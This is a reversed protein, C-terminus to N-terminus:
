GFVLTLDVSVEALGPVVTPGPTETATIDTYRGDLPTRHFRISRAPIDVIWYEPIGHRAYLEAKVSRDFAASSDAVEVVLLVDEPGPHAHRYFDPRSKLLALDPYVEATPSLRLANQIHVIAKGLAIEMFTQTLWCVMGCHFSNIPAMDIMNGDILEVREDPLFIGVEAMKHFQEAKIRHRTIPPPLVLEM